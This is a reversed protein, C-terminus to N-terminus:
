SPLPAQDCRVCPAAETLPARYFAIGKCGLQRALHIWEVIRDPSVDPALHVTKSVAGDVRWQFRAQMAIQREAPIEAGRCWRGQEAPAIGPLAGAPVGDELARLLAAAEGRREAIEALVSASVLRHQADGDRVHVVPHLLPEIGGSCAALLRLTGTPAIALTTANRRPAGPGRWAPFAGREGALAESARAASGAVTAMLEDALRESEPSGYAVGRRLLLDAFGMVGLGIKRTRLSASACESDPSRQVEVVDDLFRVALEAEAGLAAIDLAGGADAFAPLHLSGLVCSEGPLLPQEGCPNTAEIAGLHPVPNGQAIADLFLLTPQGTAAIARAIEELVANAPVRRSFGQHQLTHDGGRRASELLADRVGVALGLGALTGASPVPARVFDILDPHDDRLVALHAGPRRGSLSNIRASHAFLEAFARPGPSVGGARRIPAGRPRLRSLHIGVGGSLQQIRAARGLVDYISALEDEPELVFCAALQGLRGANSLVPVSPLFRLSRISDSFREAIEARREPVEAAAVASAVREAVDALTREPPTAVTARLVAARAALTERWLAALPEPASAGATSAPGAGIQGSGERVAM